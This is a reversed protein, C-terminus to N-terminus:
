VTHVLAWIKEPKLPMDIATIGLPWLADLVANVITPPGGLCGAEGVGKAGLPNTPSPTEILDTTIFPVQEANPVAYEMLTGTLLQGDHDYVMEEYLAQGIGQALGGHIQAEVLYHNIVRGCDDVAIYRVIEVEGTETDVEVVAIHAGSAYSPATQAFDRWAALGEIAVGHLSPPSEHTLLDPHAEAYQALDGLAIRRTPVGRVTVRGDELVLDDPAVELVHAAVQMAKERVAQAAVLVASAGVQTMRSGFTGISYAPLATDNMQVVIQSAPIHLTEAVLQAFITFHGQGNHSSGSQVLVTGDAQIRVTASERPTGPPPSFSDGSLEIFTAIGIGLLKQTTHQCREQQKARWSTYDALTLAKDLAAQYNGSDYTVGTVTKYPFHEPAIFNRQRVEAPDLALEHAIRDMIRELIYAAEPRGAGRYATTPAKNNYVGIVESAIAQVRYPGSLFTMSRVPIMAGISALFAGMEAYTRIKIGLLQGDNQYAAEVYNVQGRGQAQAQLNESRTEIWKVPRHLKYALLAAVTEEGLSANKVGFGGGVDANYVRINKADLKLTSALAERLRHISQSSVWASFQGSTPDFDFMCARPEISTPALRQHVLRVSTTHAAHAFAAQIDGHTSSLSFAANTGFAEYLLPADPALAAEPDVAAHLPEYEVDVLEAADVATYRDEALVVAVADGVYRVKDEAMPKRPSPKLGPMPVVPLPELDQVIDAGTFAAIVGPLAQAAELDIHEILAHAYISRVFAVHLAAPRGEPPKLDDVYQGHGTILPYDERRREFGPPPTHTTM